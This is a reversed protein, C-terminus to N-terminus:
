EQAEGHLAKIEKAAKEFVKKLDAQEKKAPAAVLICSTARKTNAAAGLGAKSPVYVYPIGAEECIVPLHSLVDIPSIDGALIV